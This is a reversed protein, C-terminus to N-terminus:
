WGWIPHGDRCLSWALGLWLGEHGRCGLDDRSGLGSRAQVQETKRRGVTAGDATAGPGGKLSVHTAGFPIIAGRGVFSPMLKSLPGVLGVVALYILAAAWIGLTM